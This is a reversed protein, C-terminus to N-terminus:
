ICAAPEGGASRTPSMGEACSAIFMGSSPHLGCYLTSVYGIPVRALCESVRYGLGFSWLALPIGLWGVGYMIHVEVLARTDLLILSLGTSECRLAAGPIM